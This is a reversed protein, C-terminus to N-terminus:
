IIGDPTQVKGIIDPSGAQGSAIGGTSANLGVEPIFTTHLSMAYITIFMVVCHLGLCYFFFLMRTTRTALIARTLSIFLRELPSLKSNIREQERIRFQEIPHLKSEYTQHYPNSELDVNPKPQYLKKGSFTNRSAISQQTQNFSALYRTREYLEENDKKLINLERRLSTSTNYQKKLEEELETNRDRFRDRQKTIIPLISSPEEGGGLGGGLITNSGSYGSIISGNRGPRTVRSVGSILSSNDNFKVTDQVEAIDDELKYNLEQSKILEQQLITNQSELLSIQKQIDEHQSRYQALEQTLIKNRNILINDLNNTDDSDTNTLDGNGNEDNENDDDQGFEIQRLLHLEHKIEDYDFTKDLRSKLNKIEINFKESDKHFTEQITNNEKISDHLKKRIQDLNAVLLANEGELELSKKSFEEKLSQIASDNKSKSLERRLDENRKELQYIRKKSSEADRSVIDLQALLSPTSSSDHLSSRNKNQSDLQLETVEKSTRLEEIQNQATKLQSQYQNEKELWNSEKEDILSKYEDDKANLKSTLLEAAKQENRLLRQKLQEYDAKRTLEETLRDVERKLGDVETSQMVSDLSAELLPKPDPAEAILRYIGFFYNEVTKKRNTLSDIENQYLKLLSKFQDLKEDDSLKRFEKTKSALEKRNSLSNKQDDKLELGQEDLKRQLSPLDIETWVQLATEFSSSSKNTTTTTAGSIPTPLPTPSQELLQDDGNVEPTPSAFETDEVM